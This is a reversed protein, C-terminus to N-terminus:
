SDSEPEQKIFEESAAQAINGNVAVTVENIIKQFASLQSQTANATAVIRMLAKVSADSAGRRALAQIVPDKSGRASASGPGTVAATARTRTHRTVRKSPGANARIPARISRPTVRPRSGLSSIDTDAEVEDANHTGASNKARVLRSIITVLENHAREFDGLCNKEKQRAHDLEAKAYIM